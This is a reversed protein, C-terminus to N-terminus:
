RPLCMKRRASRLLLMKPRRLIRVAGALGIVTAVTNFCDIVSAFAQRASSFAVMGDGVIPTM